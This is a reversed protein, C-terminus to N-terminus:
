LDFENQFAPKVSIKREIPKVIEPQLHKGFFDGPDWKGNKNTDYLIRLEYEGPLFLTESIENSTLAYSKVITEGTLILLVPNRSLELNKLRIKIAGYDALKKTRFDLTDSKLLKGGSTDEAFEKDMILHYDTNEKWDHVLTVIKKSTDTRFSYAPVPNFTSDTYLRIKTSDFLRLPEDFTLTLKNLLDQQGGVLNSRVRLRRDEATNGKKLRAATGSLTVPAPKTAYAYLTISDPSSSTRPVVPKDAFAFLQKENYYRRAGGEDKLAYLYFTKPPLNRFAFHGKNDLKAIYRPSKNVVASDDPDTHLMVILTTDIKGTEALIVRGGLELSDIYNGTSFTYTFNKKINGETFDRLAEGFNITYTTNSELSDRFRVTVTNLKYEVSPFVELNPSILLQQQANQLEIFENFTFVIRNGTFNRTSDLPTVKEIIPPLSDRPGGSPPIINACGPGTLAYTLLLSIVLFAPILRRYNMSFAFM